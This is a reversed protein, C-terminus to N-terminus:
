YAAHTKSSSKLSQEWLAPAGMVRHELSVTLVSCMSFLVRLVHFEKELCVEEWKPFWSHPLCVTRCPKSKSVDAPWEGARLGQRPIDNNQTSVSSQIKGETVLLFSFFLTSLSSVNTVFMRVGPPDYPLCDPHAGYWHWARCPLNLAHLCSCHLSKSIVLNIVWWVPLAVGQGRGLCLWFSCSKDAQNGDWQCCYGWAGESLM